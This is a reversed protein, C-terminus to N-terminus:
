GSLLVVILYVGFLVAMAVGMVPTYSGGKKPKAPPQSEPSPEDDDLLKLKQRQFEADTLVGADRLAALKRLEDAVSM